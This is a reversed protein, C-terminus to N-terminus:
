NPLLRHRVGYEDSTLIVQKAQRTEPNVV